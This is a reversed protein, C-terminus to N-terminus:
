GIMSREATRAPGTVYLRARRLAARREDGRRVATRGLAGVITAARVSLWGQPGYWKRVLAEASSHFLLERRDADDSSGAGEHFARAENCVAVSWGRLHCRWQWDAEEAYLFFREDFRGVDSIAEARLLLVAGILFSWRPILRSLGLNDAWAGSPSPFPWAVQPQREPLPGDLVPAVAAVRENGPARLFRRMTAIANPEVRADPNLLLIDRTVPALADIAVNVAAAFGLNWGPDLYRAGADDAVRRCQANSSNDVVLLRMGELPELSRSLQDPRNFAVVVVDLDTM